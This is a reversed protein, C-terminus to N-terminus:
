HNEYLQMTEISLVPKGTRKFIEKAQFESSEIFLKMNLKEYTLAKYNECNIDYDPRMILNEYLINHDKLWKETIDRHKEVRGTVIYKIPRAPRYLVKAKKMVEPDDPGDTCIVGDLDSCTLSLIGHNMMNWEFFREPPIISHYILHGDFRKPKAESTYMCGFYVKEYKYDMYRRVSELSSGTDASDDIILIKAIANLNDRDGGKLITIKGNQDVIGLKKNLHLALLSAVMLGSRPIGIVVDIEPLKRAYEVIDKTLKQYSVFNM